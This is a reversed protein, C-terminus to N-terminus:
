EAKKKSKLLIAAVGGVVAAGILLWKLRRHKPRAKAQDQSTQPAPQPAPPNQSETAAAPVTSQRGRAFAAPELQTIWLCFAVFFSMAFKWNANIRM